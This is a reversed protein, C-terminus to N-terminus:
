DKHYEVVIPVHMLLDNAGLLAANVFTTPPRTTKRHPGNIHGFVHVRPKVRDIPALLARCGLHMGGPAYDLLGYPPGHAVLVDFETPINAYLKKRDASSSLGFAGSYLPTVPSGWINLDLVTIEQNILVTANQLLSYPFPYEEVPSDHNGPLVIKHRHPLDGLWDNFDRPADLSKDHGTFDGAHILIDGSPIAVERHLGHTDSLCIITVTAM